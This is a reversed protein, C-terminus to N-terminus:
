TWGDFVPMPVGQEWSHYAAICVAATRVADYVDILPRRDEVIADIFSRILSGKTVGPYPLHLEILDEERRDGVYLKGSGWDNLFTAETGYLMLHHLAPRKCGITTLSKAVCGKSFRLLVAMCDPSRFEKEEFCTRNGYAMVEVVEDAIIWRLLDILHVGGGSVINYHPLKGRWGYRILHEVNHIYDGEAYFFEGFVGKEALRKVEQFRPCFRLILNSSLKKGSRNVAELIAECEEITTAIPKEVLVHLGADLATVTQEAHLDDPTCISIVDLAGHQILEDCETTTLRVGYEGAVRQLKAEDIDCLGVVEVRPDAQYGQIHGQGVGLGVVGARLPEM